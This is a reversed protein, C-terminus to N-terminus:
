ILAKQGVLIQGRKFWKDPKNGAGNERSVSGEELLKGLARQVTKKDKTTREVIKSVVMGESGNGEEPLVLLVKDLWARRTEEDVVHIGEHYRLNIATPLEDYNGVCELRRANANGGDHDYRMQYAADVVALFAGGGRIARGKAGESKRDHFLVLIAIELGHALSGLPTLRKIIEANDNEDELQLFPGLSDIVVLRPPILTLTKLIAELQHVAHEAWLGTFTLVPNKTLRERKSVTAFRAFMQRKSRELNIWMVPGASTARGLFPAGNAVAIALQAALSSKGVKGIGYLMTLGDAPILQHVVWQAPGTLSADDWLTGLLEFGVPLATV